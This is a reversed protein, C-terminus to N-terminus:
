KIWGKVKKATNQVETLRTSLWMYRENSHGEKCMELCIRSEAVELAYYVIKKEFDTLKEM